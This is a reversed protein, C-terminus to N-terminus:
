SNLPGIPGIPRVAPSNAASALSAAVPVFGPTQAEPKPNVQVRAQGDPLMWDRAFDPPISSLTVPEATLALM